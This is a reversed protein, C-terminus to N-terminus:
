RGMRRRGADYTSSTCVDHKRHARISYGLRTDVISEHLGDYIAVRGRQEAKLQYTSPNLLQNEHWDDTAQVSGSAHSASSLFIALIATTVTISNM